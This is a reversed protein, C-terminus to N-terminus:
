DAVNRIVEPTYERQRIVRYLGKDLTITGHEEHVLGGAAVMRLFVNDDASFLEADKTAIAHAHGTVEGYALIIRGKDRKIPTGTQGEDPTSILLVDGQRFHKM